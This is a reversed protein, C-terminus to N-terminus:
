EGRGKKADKAERKTREGQRAALEKTEAETAGKPDVAKDQDKHPRHEDHKGM